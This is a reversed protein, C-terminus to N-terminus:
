ATLLSTHALFAILEDIEEECGGLIWDCIVKSIGAVYFSLDMGKLIGRERIPRLIGGEIRRELVPAMNSALVTRLMPMNRRHHDLMQRVLAENASGPDLEEMYMRNDRDFDDLIDLLVAEQTEFLRYFTVRNVKARQAIQTVTIPGNPYRELLQLFADKIRRAAPSNPM